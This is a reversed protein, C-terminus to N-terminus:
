EHFLGGNFPPRKKYILLFMSNIASIRHIGIKSFIYKHILNRHQHIASILFTDNCRHCVEDVLILAVDGVNVL